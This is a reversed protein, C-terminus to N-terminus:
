KKKKIDKIAKPLALPSQQGYVPVPLLLMMPMM